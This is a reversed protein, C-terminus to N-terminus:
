VGEVMLRTDPLYSLHPIALDPREVRSIANLAAAIAGEQWGPLSSLQDGIVFFNPATQTHGTHISSGQALANFHAVANGAHEDVAHWQAWGGKIYPMNQWAIAVGHELGEGFAKGFLKAGSRAKNLREDVPLKGWDYAVESFNYAGTLVGKQDHYDCSPYWVQVIEDDTWSIGGFIPVVGVESDPVTLLQEQCAAPSRIDVQSGQWLYRDAQWGVKTTCALFKDRHVGKDDFFQASYVANLAQKFPKDLGRDLQVDQLSRDLIEKLFPVAMNVFCYDAYYVDLETTGIKSVSVKFQERSSDWEIRKVPSNLHITGGLAAVQRAFAHQVQDMGGVPQFLTAQWLFDSPQYFRTKDWFKSDLLSNFSLPEATVGAQVGPLETYGARTKGNELGPQGATTVYKGDASLEGFSIMLEKLQEARTNIDSPAVQCETSRVLQEANEYVLQALWGRTNHDLRRYVLPLGNFSDKMQVLNSESNMVYVEVDVGFQKLYSLLRKHSSPIRGPGANLYPQNDGLPQQFRVVQTQGPKSNFLQSDQDETLTDGTRLSLCRGGTRNQAELITVEMGTKQQLLEYAATLGSVGAGIIIAQKGTFKGATLKIAGPTVKFQQNTASDLAAHAKANPHRSLFKARSQHNDM